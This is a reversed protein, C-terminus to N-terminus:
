LSIAFSIVKVNDYERIFMFITSTRLSSVEIMKFDFETSHSEKNHGEM